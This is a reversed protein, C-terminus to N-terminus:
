ASPAPLQRRRLRRVPLRLRHRIGTLQAQIINLVFVAAIVARLACRQVLILHRAIKGAIGSGTGKKLRPVFVLDYGFLVSSRLREHNTKEGLGHYAAKRQVMNQGIEQDIGTHAPTQLDDIGSSGGALQDVTAKEVARDAGDVAKAHDDHQKGNRRQLM